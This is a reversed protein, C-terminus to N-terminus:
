CDGIFLLINLNVEREDGDLIIIIAIILPSHLDWNEVFVAASM